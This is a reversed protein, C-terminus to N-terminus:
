ATMSLHSIPPIRPSFASRESALYRPANAAGPSALPAWGGVNPKETDGWDWSRRSYGSINQEKEQLEQRREAGQSGM